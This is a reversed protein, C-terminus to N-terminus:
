NAYDIKAQTKFKQCAYRIADLADDNVKIPKPLRAGTKKDKEWQYTQIEEIAGKCSKDIFIRRDQLWEIGELVSNPGKICAKCFVGKRQM